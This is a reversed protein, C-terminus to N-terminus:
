LAGAEYLQDVQNDSLVHDFVRIDDISGRICEGGVSSYCGIYSYAGVSNLGGFTGSTTVNAGNLYFKASTGSWTAVLHHWISDPANTAGIIPGGGMYIHLDGAPTTRIYVRSADVTQPHSFIYWGGASAPQPPNTKFWVSVTGEDTAHTAPIRIYQASGSFSYASNPQENQGTTPVANNFVTGHFGNGSSDLTNGNLKWWGIIKGGSGGAAVSADLAECAGEESGIRLADTLSSHNATQPNYARICYYTAQSVVDIINGETPTFRIHENAGEASHWEVATGYVGSNKSGYRVVEGSVAEIDSLLSQERASNTVGQYALVSITALIAIVVIVILLETISFGSRRLHHM